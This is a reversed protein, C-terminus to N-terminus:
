STTLFGGNSVVTMWQKVNRIGSVLKPNCFLNVTSQNDLLISERLKLKGKHSKNVNCFDFGRLGRQPKAEEHSEADIHLRHRAALSKKPHNKASSNTGSRNRCSPALRSSM